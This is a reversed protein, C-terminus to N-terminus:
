VEEEINVCTLDGNCPSLSIVYTIDNKTDNYYILNFFASYNIPLPKHNLYVRSNFERKLRYRLRSYLTHLNYKGFVGFNTTYFDVTYICVARDEKTLKVEENTKIYFEENRPIAGVKLLNSMSSNIVNSGKLQLMDRVNATTLSKGSAVANGDSILYNPIKLNFRFKLRVAYGLVATSNPATVTGIAINNTLPTLRVKRKVRGYKTHGLKTIYEITKSKGEREKRM